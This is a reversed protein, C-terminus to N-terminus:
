QEGIFERDATFGFIRKVPIFGMIKELIKKREKTNSNGQKDLNVWAIPLAIGKFAIGVVLFNISIKGFKWNTRDM